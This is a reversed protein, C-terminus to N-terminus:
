KPLLASPGGLIAKIWEFGFKLLEEDDKEIMRKWTRDMRFQAFINREQVFNRFGDINYCALFALQQMNGGSGEGKWPNSSFLTDVEAWLDNMLNYEDLRQNRVWKKVTFQNDELHGLCYEHRTLFYFDNPRGKTSNRDVARELPYTRCATPRDKYVSCGKETLFPCARENGFLTLKLKLTPFYPNGGKKLETYKRLITESDIALARKLRVIDYPYLDLDVNKCCRTFCPVGSHCSFHFSDKGLPKMGEPFINEETM